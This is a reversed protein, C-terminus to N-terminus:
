ASRWCVTSLGGAAVSHRWVSIVCKTFRPVRLKTSWSGRHQHTHACHPPRMLPLLMPLSLRLTTNHWSGSHQTNDASRCCLCSSHISSKPILYCEPVGSLFAYVRGCACRSRENATAPPIPVNSVCLCRAVVCARVRACVYACACRRPESSAVGTHATQSQATQGAPPCSRCWGEQAATQRCTCRGWPRRSSSCGRGPCPHSHQPSSSASPTGHHTRQSVQRPM